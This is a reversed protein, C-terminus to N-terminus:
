PELWGRVNARTQAEWDDLMQALARAVDPRSDILSYSEDPDQELDFLFPGQSQLPYGGNDALHRRHYKWRGQRVAALGWGDYYYFADHPSPAEGKLLPLIDRGDIIRDGPLPVGALKLCTPFLDFNVALEHSVAGAPIVGPWRALCPVRFSGEFVHNKRGRLAGASGQQWPGNDSTFVLLTNRDLGEAQLTELVQGVSWDLEEVADGYLGARSRGRFGASAHVPEHVMPHSLYLFFPADRSERIFRVAERTHSQTLLDQDAPAKEEVQRNRYLAYPQVDNAYLSGYFFDFGNENPLHPSRDGLHWKGVLATRYGRRQLLEPLLLEDEPIGLVGCAYFGITSLLHQMFSGTPYLPMTMHTRVPYRGTLLGARSPTCVPASAYFHTLRMGERAMRVLNPTAIATAGYATLDGYGLDDALILVINPLGADPGAPQIRSLFARSRAPDFHRGSLNHYTRLGWGAAALAGAGVAAGGLLRRRTIRMRKGGTM